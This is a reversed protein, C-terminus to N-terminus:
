AGKADTAQAQAAAEKTRYVFFGAVGCAAMGVTCILLVNKIGGGLPGSLFNLVFIAVFMGTNAGAM